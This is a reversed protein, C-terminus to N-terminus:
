LIIFLLYIGSSYLNSLDFSTYFQIYILMAFFLCNLVLFYIIHVLM